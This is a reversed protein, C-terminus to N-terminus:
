DVTLVEDTAQTDTTADNPSEWIVAEREVWENAQSKEDANMLPFAAYIKEFQRRFKSRKGVLDMAPKYVITALLFDIATHRDIIDELKYAECKAKRRRLM